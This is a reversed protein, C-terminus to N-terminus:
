QKIIEVFFTFKILFDSHISILILAILSIHIIFYLTHIISRELTTNDTSNLKNHFM